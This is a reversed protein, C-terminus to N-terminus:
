CQQSPLLFAMWGTFFGTNTCQQWHHNSQLNQDNDDENQQLFDM